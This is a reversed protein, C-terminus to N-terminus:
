ELEFGSLTVPVGPPLYMALGGNARLVYLRSDKGIAPTGRSLQSSATEAVLNAGTTPDILRLGVPAGPDFADSGRTFAIANNYAIASVNWMTSATSVQIKLEQSGDTLDYAAVFSPDGWLEHGVLYAKNDLIAPTSDGTLVNNNKWLLEGTWADVACLESTGGFNYTPALVIGDYYTIGGFFANTTSWPAGALPADNTWITSGDTADIAAIGLDQLVFLVEGMGNNVYAPAESGPGGDQISWIVHGDALDFAYLRKQDPSFGGYTSIYARGGGITVSGNVIDASGGDDLPEDWVINGTTGDLRYMMTGTAMYVSNTAADCAPTHWSGFAYTNGVSLAPSTWVHNGHRANFAKVFISSGGSNAGWAVVLDPAGPLISVSGDSVLDQPGTEWEPANLDVLLNGIYQRGGGHPLGAFRAWDHAVPAVGSGSLAIDYSPDNTADTLIELTASIPGAADPNAMITFSLSGGAPISTLSAAKPYIDFQNDGILNLKAGVFTLPGDGPNSVVITASRSPGMTIDWPAFAAVPVGSVSIEPALINIAGIAELDVGGSGTTLWPDYIAHGASDLFDGRGPIDVCRVYQIANLNVQGGTVLPHTLLDDLDFPTGWSAGNNVHKGALNYVNTPDFTGFAGVAAPTLSDSPFRAFNTGNSAVEVYCLEGFIGPGSLFGNEFIAFDTGPGNIIKPSFGVTIQGPPNGATMMAATLDGLCVIDFNNGTAPGLIKTPDAFAPTIPQPSPSYDVITNAWAKIQPNSVNPSTTVGDGNPGTFGPVGPDFTNTPDGM